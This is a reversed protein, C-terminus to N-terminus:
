NYCKKQKKKCKLGGQMFRQNKIIKTKQHKQPLKKTRFNESIDNKINKIQVITLKRIKNHNQINLYKSKKPTRM